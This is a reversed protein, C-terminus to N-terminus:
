INFYIIIVNNPDKKNRVVYAKGFGGKGAKKVIIYDGYEKESEKVMVSKIIGM